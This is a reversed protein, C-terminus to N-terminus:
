QTQGQRSGSLADYEYRGQPVERLRRYTPLYLRADRHATARSRVSQRGDRGHQASLRLRFQLLGQERYLEQGQDLSWPGRAVAWVSRRDGLNASLEVPNGGDPASRGSSLPPRRLRTAARRSSRRP